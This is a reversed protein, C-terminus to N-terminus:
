SCITIKRTEDIESDQCWSTNRVIYATKNIRERVVFLAEVASQYSNYSGIVTRFSNGKLWIDVKEFGAKKAKQTEYQAGELNKDGGAIIMWFLSSDPEITIVSAPGRNINGGSILKETGSTLVELSLNTTDLLGSINEGLRNREEIFRAQKFKALRVSDVKILGLEDLADIRKAFEDYNEKEVAGVILSTLLKKDELEHNADRQQFHSYASYGITLLGLVLPIASTWVRRQEKLKLELEKKKLEIEELKIKQDLEFKKIELENESMSM